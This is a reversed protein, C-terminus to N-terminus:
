RFNVAMFHIRDVHARASNTLSILALIYISNTNMGTAGYKSAGDDGFGVYFIFDVSIVHLLKQQM